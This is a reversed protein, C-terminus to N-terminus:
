SNSAQFGEIKKEMAALQDKLSKIELSAPESGKTGITQNQPVCLIGPQVEWPPTVGRETCDKTIRVKTSKEGIVNTLDSRSLLAIGWTFKACCLAEPDKRGKGVTATKLPAIAVWLLAEFDVKDKYSWVKKRKGEADTEALRKIGPLSLYKDLELRGIQAGSKFIYIPKEKPGPTEVVCRYGLTNGLKTVPRHAIIPESEATLGTTWPYKIATSNTLRDGVKGTAAGNKGSAGGQGAQAAQAAQRQEATPLDIVWEQPYHHKRNVERLADNIANIEKAAEEDAPNKKIRDVFPRAMEFDAAFSPYNIIWQDPNIGDKENQQKIQDNLGKLSNIAETDKSNEMLKSEEEVGEMNEMNDEGLAKGDWFRIELLEDHDVGLKEAAKLILKFAKEANKDTNYDSHTLTGRKRFAKLVEEKEEKQTNYNDNVGLIRRYEKKGYKLVEQVMETQEKSPTSNAEDDSEDDSEDEQNPVKPQSAPANSGEAQPAKDAKNRAPDPGPTAEPTALGHENRTETQKGGLNPSNISATGATETM